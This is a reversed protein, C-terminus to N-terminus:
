ILLFLNVGSIPSSKLYQDMYDKKIVVEFIVYIMKESIM